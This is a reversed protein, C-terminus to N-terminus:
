AGLLFRTVALMGQNLYRGLVNLQPSIWSILFLGMLIIPGYTQLPRLLAALRQGVIGNLVSNGDLPALPILNFLFLAVNVAVFMLAFQRVGPAASDFAGLRWPIAVLSAMLLNSVPGAAAVIAYGVRPGHKLRHPNVPVPKAWGIFSVLLLLSGIPDLHALPNLTLRGQHKATNDGLRYAVWAHALEHIPFGVLLIVVKALLTPIDFDFL